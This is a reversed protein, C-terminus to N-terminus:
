EEAARVPPPPDLLVPRAELWGDAVLDDPLVRLEGGHDDAARVPPAVEVVVRRVLDEVHEAAGHRELVDVLPAAPLVGDDALTLQEEDGGMREGRWMAGGVGPPEHDLDLAAGRVTLRQDPETLAAVRL